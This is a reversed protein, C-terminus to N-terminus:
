SFQGIYRAFVTSGKDYSYFEIAKPNTESDVVFPDPFNSDKKLTGGNVAFSVTRDAGNKILHVVVSEIVDKQDSFNNLTLTVDNGLAPAVTIVQFNGLELNIDENQSASMTHTKIYNGILVAGSLQNGAFNNDANLKATNDQLNTIESKASAFNSKIINFNDRFGQSNNDQGAVPFTADISTSDINSAM